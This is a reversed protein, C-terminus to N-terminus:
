HEIIKLSDLGTRSFRTAFYAFFYVEKQINSLLNTGSNQTKYLIILIQLLLLSTLYCPHIFLAPFSVLQFLVLKLM